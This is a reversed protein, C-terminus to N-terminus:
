SYNLKLNLHSSRLMLTINLQTTFKASGTTSLQFTVQTKCGYHMQLAVM